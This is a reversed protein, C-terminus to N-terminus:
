IGIVLQMTTLRSTLPTSHITRQNERHLVLAFGSASAVPRDGVCAATVPRSGARREDQAGALQGNKAADSLPNGSLYLRLFPAFNKKGEADAKAAAVLSSLDAIKNREILLMSQPPHQTAPGIDEIANDSLKLVTFRAIGGLPKINVVQNKALDLSSM